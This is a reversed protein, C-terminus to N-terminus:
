TAEKGAEVTCHLYIINTIVTDKHPGKVPWQLVAPLSYLVKIIYLHLSDFCLKGKFVSLLYISKGERVM